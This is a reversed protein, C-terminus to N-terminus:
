LSNQLSTTFAHLKFNAMAFTNVGPSNAFAVYLYTHRDGESGAFNVLVSNVLELCSVMWIDMRLLPECMQSAIQHQNNTPIRLEEVCLGRRPSSSYGRSMVASNGKVYRRIGNALCVSGKLRPLGLCRFRSLACDCCSRKRAKRLQLFSAHTKCEGPSYAEKPLKRRLHPRLNCCRRAEASTTTTRGRGRGSEAAAPRQLGTAGAEAGPVASETVRDRAQGRRLLEPSRLAGRAPSRGRVSLGLQM